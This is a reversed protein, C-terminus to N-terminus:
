LSKVLPEIGQTRLTSPSSTAHFSPGENSFETLHATNEDPVAPLVVPVLIGSGFHGLRYGAVPSIFSLRVFCM